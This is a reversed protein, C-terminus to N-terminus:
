VLSLISFIDVFFAAVLEGTGPLYPNSVDLSHAVDDTSKGITVKGIFISVTNDHHDVENEHSSEYEDGEKSLIDFGYKDTGEETSDRPTHKSCLTRSICCFNNGQSQSAVHSSKHIQAPSNTLKQGRTDEFSQQVVGSFPTVSNRLSKEIIKM